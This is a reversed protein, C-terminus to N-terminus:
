GAVAVALAAICGCSAEPQRSGCRGAGALALVLLLLTSVTLQWSCSSRSPCLCRSSVEPFRWLLVLGALRPHPRAASAAWCRIRDARTRGLASDRESERERKERECFQVFQIILLANLLLECGTFYSEPTTKMQPRAPRARFLKCHSSFDTVWEPVLLNPLLVNIGGATSNRRQHKPCKSSKTQM